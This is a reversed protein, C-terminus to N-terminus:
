QLFYLQGTVKEKFFQMQGTNMFLLHQITSYYWWHILWLVYSFCNMDVHTKTLSQHIRSALFKCPFKADNIRTKAHM